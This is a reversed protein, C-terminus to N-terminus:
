SPQPAFIMKMRNDLADLGVSWRAKEVRLVILDDSETLHERLAEHLM